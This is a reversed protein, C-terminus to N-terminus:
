TYPTQDACSCDVEVVGSDYRRVCGHNFEYYAYWRFSKDARKVVEEPIITRGRYVVARKIWAPCQRTYGVKPIPNFTANCSMRHFHFGMFYSLTGAILGKVDNYFSSTAPVSQLLNGLQTMTVAIHYDSPRDGPMPEDIEANDLRMKALILKGITLGPFGDGGETPLITEDEHAFTTNSPIINANAAGTAYAGASNQYQFTGMIGGSGGTGPGGIIILDRNRGLGALMSQMVKSTPDELQRVLDENDIFRGDAYPLFSGFRRYMDVFGAPSDPVRTTVLQPDSTGVDDANFYQGPTDYALDMDVAELLRSRSQQPALNLNARFGPVYLSQATAGTPDAM